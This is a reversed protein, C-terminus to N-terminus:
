ATDFDVGKKCIEKRYILRKCSECTIDITQTLSISAVGGYWGQEVSAEEFVEIMEDTWPANCFGCKPRCEEVFGEKLETLKNVM